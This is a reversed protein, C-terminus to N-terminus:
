HGAGRRKFVLSVIIGASFAILVAIIGYLAGHTRSLNYLKDVVGTKELSITTMGAGIVDGGKLTLVHINYEGTPAADSINFKHTFLGDQRVKLEGEGIGYLKEKEKLQIMGNFLVDLDDESERGSTLHVYWDDKLAQYGIQYQAAETNEPFNYIENLPGTSVLQYMGPINEVKFKKTALWFFVVREKRALNMPPTEKSRMIAILNEVSSPAYGFISVQGGKYVLSVQICENDVMMPFSIHEEDGLVPESIQEQVDSAQSISFLLTSAIILILTRKMNTGEAPKSM